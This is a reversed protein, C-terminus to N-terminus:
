YFISTATKKYVIGTRQYVRKRIECREVTPLYGGLLKESKVVALWAESDLVIAKGEESIEDVIILIRYSRM